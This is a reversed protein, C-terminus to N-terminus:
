CRKFDAQINVSQILFNIGSRVEHSAIANDSSRVNPLRRKRGFYSYIFGHEGIYAKQADLWKKLTKFKTFYDKIASEADELSYYEGTAETVQQSVKGASAGYLIGFTISKAAQRMGPYLSKVDEVACPLNFVAKAIASHLDGGLKFVEQLAKDGSLVAAYYVEGTKLDQSVIKYGKPAKICGKVISNDRPLQQANFKGSSSLRGSTVFTNNFNTHVKGNKNIGKLIKDIYTNRIKGLQRIKLLLAPLPHKSSLEELVEAATSIADTATKKGTPELGIYDFLVARLHYVSNPNFIVDNDIGFQIIEKYAFVEEKAIEIEKDLFEKAIALRYESFPIGEEEMDMLFLTSRIGIARYVSYLRPNAQLIPLFKNYLTLTVAADIAAYKSLIDFPILDYTFDEEKIGHQRCYSKKFDDLEDDYAGFDTYKLALAKLGHPSNEDLLYHMVMTDDVKLRDFDIGLHYKIMKFDFKMNHFVSGNNMNVVLQLLRLCEDDLCDTSIYRGQNEKYSISIGLVYGDRPYLATTETDVAVKMTGSNLVEILFEKAEQTDNIGKFDGLQIFQSGTIFINKIRDIARLFDHKGEPKFILVSPNPISVFKNDVLHGMMTSVSTIGAYAKAAESGVLIVLDYPSLDIELTIDKKLLKKIPVDSMHFLEFDFDFYTSYNTRSPAKDIIAVKKM